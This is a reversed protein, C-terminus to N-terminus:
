ETAYIVIDARGQDAPLLGERGDDPLLSITLVSTGPRLQELAMVTGGTFDSHFSGCLHVVREKGLSPALGNAISEAMTADWVQQSRFMAGLFAEQEAPNGGEGHMGGLMEFFRDKYPGTLPESPRRVLRARDASLQDLRDYGETRALRVYRRPANAAIIREGHDQAVDLIPQYWAVWSGAGAWNESRTLQALQGADIIGELWDEVFGQEDRELMELSLSTGPYTQCLGAYIERQLAHGAAHNHQEGLFVAEVEGAKAFVEDPTLPQGSHGDYAIASALSASSALVPESAEPLSSCASAFSLGLAVGLHRWRSARSTHPSSQTSAAQSHAHM